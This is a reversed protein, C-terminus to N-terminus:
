PAFSCRSLDYGVEGYWEFFDGMAEFTVDDFPPTEGVRIACQVYALAEAMLIQQQHETSPEMAAKYLLQYTLSYRRQCRAQTEHGGAADDDLPDRFGYTPAAVGFSGREITLPTVELGAGKVCEMELRTLKIFEDLNVEGDRLAERQEPSVVDAPLSRALAEGDVISTDAALGNLQGVTESFGGVPGVLTTSSAQPAVSTEVGSDQLTSVSCGVVLVFLAAVTLFRRLQLGRSGPIVQPRGM